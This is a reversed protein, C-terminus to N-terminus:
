ESLVNRLFLFVKDVSNKYLTYQKLQVRFAAVPLALILQFSGIAPLLCMKRNKGDEQSEKIVVAPSLLRANSWCRQQSGSHDSMSQHPSQYQEPVFFPRLSQTCNPPCSVASHHTPRSESWISSAANGRYSVSIGVRPRYYCLIYKPPKHWNMVGVCSCDPTWVITAEETLGLTLYLKSHSHPRDACSLFLFDATCLPTNVPWIQQKSQWNKCCVKAVCSFLASSSYNFFPSNFILGLYSSTSLEWMCLQCAWRKRFLSEQDM